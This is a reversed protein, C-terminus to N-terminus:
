TMCTMDAGFKKYTKLAVFTVLVVLAFIPYMLLKNRWSDAKKIEAREVELSEYPNGMELEAPSGARMDSYILM